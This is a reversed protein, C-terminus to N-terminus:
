IGELATGKFSRGKSRNEHAYGFSFFVKQSRPEETTRTRDDSLETTRLLRQSVENSDQRIRGPSYGM